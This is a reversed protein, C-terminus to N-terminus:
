FLEGRRPKDVPGVVSVSFQSPILLTEALQMLDDPKVRDIEKLTKDTSNHEEQYIETRALRFMRQSTSELSLTLSGKAQAKAKLLEDDRLGNKRIRDFETFILQTAETYRRPDSAFYIGWLGVDSYLIPFSHISYVLGREERVRQFLRSSMAGGIINNLLVMAYRDRHGYPITQTGMSVHAQSIDMRKKYAVRPTVHVKKKRNNKIKGRERLHFSDLIMESLQKHDVNGAASIITRSPTYHNQLRSKLKRQTLSTLSKRTGLVSNSLPHGNFIMKTLHEFSVEDPSDEFSKIEEFVVKKEKVLEDPDFIANQLIDGLVDIAVPLHEDLIRASYCTFEKTTFADLHGGLSELSSAIEETTRKKTGKFVMHEVLHSIGGETNSEDRSGSLFWVGLSISRVHSIKESLLRIGGSLVNKKLLRRNQKM